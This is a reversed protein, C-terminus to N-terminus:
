SGFIGFFHDKSQKVVECSKDYVYVKDINSALAATVARGAGGCGLVLATKGELSFKLDEKLSRLFGDADTNFYKSTIRNVTNAASVLQVYKGDPQFGNNKLIDYAQVKHPITINFGLIDGACFAEGESDIVQSNKDILFKELDGSEVEFLRYQADIGAQNFAANHMAPSLSHKVPYGILGYIKKSSNVM